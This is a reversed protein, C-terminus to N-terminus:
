KTPPLTKQKFDLWAQPFDYTKGVVLTNGFAVTREVESGFGDGLFLKESNEKEVGILCQKQPHLNIDPTEVFQISDVTGKFPASKELAAFSLVQRHESRSCGFFLLCVFLYAFSRCSAFASQCM